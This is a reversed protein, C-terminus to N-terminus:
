LSASKRIADGRNPLLTSLQLDRRSTTIRRALQLQLADSVPM